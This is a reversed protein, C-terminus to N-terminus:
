SEDSSLHPREGKHLVVQHVRPHLSSRGLSPKRICQSSLRARRSSIRKSSKTFLSSLRHDVIKVIITRLLPETFASFGATQGPMSMLVGVVAVPLLIWGYYVSFSKPDFPSDPKLKM